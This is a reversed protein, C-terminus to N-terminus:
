KKLIFKRMEDIIYSSRDRDALDLHSVIWEDIYKNELLLKFNDSIYNKVKLEANELEKWITTRNNLFFIIDEFDTSSRGDNKSM